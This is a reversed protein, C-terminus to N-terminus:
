KRIHIGNPVLHRLLYGSEEAWFLVQCTSLDFHHIWIGLKKREWDNVYLYIDRIAKNYLHSDKILFLDLFNSRLSKNKPTPSILFYYVFNHIYVNSIFSLIKKCHSLLWLLNCIKFLQYIGCVRDLFPLQWRPFICWICIYEFIKPHVFCPIRSESM